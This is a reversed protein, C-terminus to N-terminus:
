KVGEIALVLRTTPEDTAYLHTNKWNEERDHLYKEMEDRRTRLGTARKGEPPLSTLQEEIRAGWRQFWQKLRKEEEALRPRIIARRQDKLQRLHHLSQTVASEIFGRLLDQRLNSTRGGTNALNEFRAEALAEKLARIEFRGGKRFSVAHTDVILPTGARSSVQGIFCFLLEGEDIHPSAILPAEDRKMLMMLREALWQLVPHQETLLLEGSWQGKQALAARIARDVCDPDETM